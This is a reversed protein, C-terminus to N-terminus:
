LQIMARLSVEKSNADNCEFTHQPIPGIISLSSFHNNLLHERSLYSDVNWRLAPRNLSDIEYILQNLSFRLIPHNIRFIMRPKLIKWPPLQLIFCQPRWVYRSLLIVKIILLYKFLILLILVYNHLVRMHRFLLSLQKM